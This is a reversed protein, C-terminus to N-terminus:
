NAESLGGLLADIANSNSSQADQIVKTLAASETAHALAREESSEDASEIAEDARQQAEIQAQKLRELVADKGSNYQHQGYALVILVAGVIYYVERPIGGLFEKIAIWNM